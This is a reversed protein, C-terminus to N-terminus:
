ITVQLRIKNESKGMIRINRPLHNELVRNAYRNVIDQQNVNKNKDFQSVIMRYKGDKKVFGLDNSASGVHRRRVIINAKQSRVDGAFGILSEADEHVEVTGAGYIEELAEILEKPFAFETDIELYKSM